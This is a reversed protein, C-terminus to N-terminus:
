RNQDKLLHGVLLSESSNEFKQLIQKFVKTNIETAEPLFAFWKIKKFVKPIKELDTILFM